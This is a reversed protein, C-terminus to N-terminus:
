LWTKCTYIPPVILAYNNSFLVMAEGVSSVGADFAQASGMFVACFAQVSFWLLRLVKTFVQVPDMFGTYFAQVSFWVLRLVHVYNENFFASIHVYRRYM